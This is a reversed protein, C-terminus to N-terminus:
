EPKVPELGFGSAANWLPVLELVTAALPGTGATYFETLQQRLAVPDNMSVKRAALRARTEKDLGRVQSNWFMQVWHGLDRRLTALFPVRQFLLELTVISNVQDIVRNLTGLVKQFNVTIASEIQGLREELAGAWKVGLRNLTGLIYRIVEITDLVPQVYKKYFQLLEKRIRLLTRLVPGFIRVLWQKLWLFRERLYRLLPLLGNKYFRQFMAVASSLFARLSGIFTSVTEGIGVVSARLATIAQAVAFSATGKFAGFLGGIFGVITGITSGGLDAM